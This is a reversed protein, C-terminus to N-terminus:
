PVLITDGPRLVINQSPDKGDELKKYNVSIFTESPRGKPLFVGRDQRVVVISDTRAFERFGGALALGQLVTTRGPLPFDGPKGVQGLVYFRASNARGVGITVQPVELFRGLLKTIDAALQSPTKGMAEVDGLLPITVKGDSRVNVDRTLDPEKWVFLQLSDGAGIRYEQVEANSQDQGPPSQTQPRAEAAGCTSLPLFILFVAPYARGCLRGVRRCARKSVV